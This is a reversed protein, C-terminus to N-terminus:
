SGVFLYCRDRRIPPRRDPNKLNPALQDRIIYHVRWLPMSAWSGGPGESRRAPSLAFFPPYAYSHALVGHCRGRPQQSNRIVPDHPSQPCLRGSMRGVPFLSECGDRATKTHWRPPRVDDSDRSFPNWYPSLPVALPLRRHRSADLCYGVCRPREQQPRSHRSRGGPVTSEELGTENRVPQIRIRCRSRDVERRVAPM